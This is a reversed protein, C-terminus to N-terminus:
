GRPPMTLIMKRHILGDPLRMNWPPALLSRRGFCQPPTESKYRRNRTKAWCIISRPRIPSRQGIDSPANAGQKKSFSRFADLNFSVINAGVSQAGRVGKIAPHLEAVSDPKGSVLCVANALAAPADDIFARVKPRQPFSFKTERSASRFFPGKKWSSRGIEKKALRLVM